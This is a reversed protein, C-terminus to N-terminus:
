KASSGNESIRMFKKVDLNKIAIQLMMMHIETLEILLPDDELYEPPLCFLRAMNNMCMIKFHEQHAIILKETDIMFPVEFKEIETEPVPLTHILDLYKDRLKDFEM